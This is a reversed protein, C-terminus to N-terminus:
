DPVTLKLANRITRVDRSFAEALTHPDLGQEAALRIAVDRAATQAPTSGYRTPNHAQSPLVDFERAAQRVADRVILAIQARNM